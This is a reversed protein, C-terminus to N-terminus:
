VQKLILNQKLCVELLGLSRWILKHEFFQETLPCGTFSSFGVQARGSGVGQVRSACHTSAFHLINARKQPWSFWPFEFLLTYHPWSFCAMHVILLSSPLTCVCACVGHLSSVNWHLSSSVFFLVIAVYILLGLSVFVHQYWPGNVAQPCVCSWLQHHCVLCEWRWRGGVLVCVVQDIIFYCNVGMVIIAIIWVVVTM